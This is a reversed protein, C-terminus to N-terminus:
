DIEVVVKKDDEEIAYFIIELPSEDKLEYTFDVSVTINNEISFFADNGIAQSNEANWDGDIDEISESNQLVDMQTLAQLSFKDGTNNTWDFEITAYKKGKKEFVKVQNMKINFDLFELEDDLKITKGFKEKKPEDKKVEDQKPTEEKKPEADDGCAALVLVLSLM